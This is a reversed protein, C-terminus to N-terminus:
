GAACLHDARRLVSNPEGSLLDRVTEHRDFSSRLLIAAGAALGTFLGVILGHVHFLPLCLLLRDERQWAWAALLSTVTSVLNNHSLMAGKSAGTTGSTYIISAIDESQVLPLRTNRADGGWDELTEALLVAEM